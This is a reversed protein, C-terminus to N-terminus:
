IIKEGTWVHVHLNCPKLPSFDIGSAICKKPNDIHPNTFVIGVYYFNILVIKELSKSAGFLKKLKFNQLMTSYKSIRYNYDHANKTFASNLKIECISDIQSNPFEAYPTKELSTLDTDPSLMKNYNTFNSDPLIINLNVIGELQNIKKDLKALQAKVTPWQLQQLLIKETNSIDVNYSMLSVINIDDVGSDRALQGIFKTFVLEGEIDPKTSLRTRSLSFCVYLTSDKCINYDEITKDDDIPRGNFRFVHTNRLSSTSKSEVIDYLDSIKTKPCVRECYTKSNKNSVNFFLNIKEM